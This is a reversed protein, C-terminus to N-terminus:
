SLSLLERHFYKCLCQHIEQPRVSALVRRRNEEDSFFDFVDSLVRTHNTHEPSSFAIAIRVPDNIKHGFVVPKVLTLLSASLKKAGMEPGAHFFATNPAIVMYPGYLTFLDKMARIYSPWISDKNLLLRGAIEIVDEPSGAKVLCRITKSTLVKSFTVSEEKHIITHKGKIGETLELINKINEIDEDTLFANVQIQPIVTLPGLPITSIVADCEKLLSSNHALEFASTIETIEIEPLLTNIQSKLSYATASGAGCVLLVRRRLSSIRVKKLAIRIHNVISNLMHAENQYGEEVIIPEIVKLILNNISNKQNPFDLSAANVGPSNIGSKSHHTLEWEICDILDSDSHLGAHFYKASEQVIRESLERTHNNKKTETEKGYSHLGNQISILLLHSFYEYEWKMLDSRYNSGLSQFVKEADKKYVPVIRRGPVEVEMLFQGQRIRSITIGLFLTLEIHVRDLFACKYKEEINRIQKECGPLNLSQLFSRINESFIRKDVERIEIDKIPFICSQLIFDQGLNEILIEQVAKRIQIESGTLHIGGNKNTVLKIGRKNLWNKAKKLDRYFSSPSTEIKERITGLKTKKNGALIMQLFLKVREHSNLSFEKKSLEHITSSLKSRRENDIDVMVGENPKQLIDIGSLKLCASIKKISYRVQYISLGVHKALYSTAIPKTQNLLALLVRNDNISLGSLNKM